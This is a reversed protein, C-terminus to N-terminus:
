KDLINFKSKSLVFKSKEINGEVLHRQLPDLYGSEAMYKINKPCKELNQLVEGAKESTIPDDSNNFKM